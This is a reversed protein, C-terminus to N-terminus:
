RNICQTREYYNRQWVMKNKIHSKIRIQTTVASKFGALLAGIFRTKPGNPLTLPKFTSSAILQAPFIVEQQFINQLITVFYMGAKDYDFESLRISYRYPIKKHYHQM